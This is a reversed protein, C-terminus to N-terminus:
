EKARSGRRHPHEGEGKDEATEKEDGDKEDEDESDKKEGDEDEEDEDEDWKLSQDNKLREEEAEDLAPLDQDDLEDEKRAPRESGEETEWGAPV